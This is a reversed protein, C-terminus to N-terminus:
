SEMARVLQAVEASIRSSVDCKWSKLHVVKIEGVCSNKKFYQMKRRQVYGRITAYHETGQEKGKRDKRFSRSKMGCFQLKRTIKRSL